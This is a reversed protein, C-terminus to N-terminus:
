NITNLQKKIDKLISRAVITFHLICSSKYFINYISFFITCTFHFKFFVIEFRQKLCTLNIARLHNLISLPSKKTIVM